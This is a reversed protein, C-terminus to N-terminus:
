EKTVDHAYIWDFRGLVQEPALRNALGLVGHGLARVLPNAYHYNRANRNAAEIVQVARHRRRAQYLAPGEDLGSLALADALVWSDELALVAGQAMFPLTPHAADGLIVAHGKHWQDAVSHRHLGWLHVTIVRELLAQVPPAFRAF